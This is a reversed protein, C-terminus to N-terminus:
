VWYKLMQYLLENAENGGSHKRRIDLVGCLRVMFQRRQATGGGGASPAWEAMKSIEKHISMATLLVAM